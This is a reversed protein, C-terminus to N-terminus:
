GILLQNVENAAIKGSILSPPVGPGPVTLQGTYVLNKIKKSKMKPKLPGTQRLTNALGYANGKFSHYDKSFDDLGYSKKFVVHKLVEQGTLEELRSMILKFCAERKEPSDELGPALPVLITLNEKGEPAVAPDTLSPASVYFLPAKPWQPRDYIDAAHVAFDTDFFLNHHQLGKLKKEVGLYFLLASPALTRKQWYNDTYTRAEKPLLKQEIFHYDAGGIVADSSYLDKNSQVSQIRGRDIQFGKVEESTRIEGGLDLFLKRMSQVVSGMGGMPYWTGLKLDAFNMLSYLAPTNQPKAGLFLVPFELISILKPDRFFKKIHKTISSFVQNKFLGQILDTSLYEVFTDGTQYVMKDMGLRYKREAEAMYTELKKRGGQEVSEFLDLVGDWDGPVDIIEDKSFFVRYSPDLRLLDYQDAVKASFDEFFSEFVEPMWYWSPGMDFRFGDSELIRARGGVQDNKELLVVEHGSKALYSASALGAFGGGIVTVKSSM